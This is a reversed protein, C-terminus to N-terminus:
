EGVSISRWDVIYSLFLSDPLFKSVNGTKLDLLLGDWDIIKDSHPSWFFRTTKTPFEWDYITSGDSIEIARFHIRANKDSYLFGIYKGDQSWRFEGYSGILIDEAISHPNSLSTIKIDALCLSSFDYKGDCSYAIQNELPSFYYDGSFINTFMKEGSLSFLHYKEQPTWQVWYKGTPSVQFFRGYNHETFVLTNSNLLYIRALNDDKSFVNVIITEDSLWTIEKIELNPYDRADLIRHLNNGDPDSIWIEFPRQFFPNTYFLLYRGSPSWQGAALGKGM